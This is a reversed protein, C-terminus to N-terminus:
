NSTMMSHHCQATPTGHLACSTGACQLWRLQLTSPAQHTVLCATHKHRRQTTCSSPKPWLLLSGSSLDIPPKSASNKPLHAALKWHMCRACLRCYAAAAAAAAVPETLEVAPAVTSAAALMMPRSHSECACSLLPKAASVTNRKHTSVCTNPQAAQQGQVQYPVGTSVATVTNSFESPTHM